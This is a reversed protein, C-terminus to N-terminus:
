AMQLCVSCKDAAGEFTLQELEGKKSPGDKRQCSRTACASSNGVPGDITLQAADGYKDDFKGGGGGPPDSCVDWIGCGGQRWPSGLQAGM